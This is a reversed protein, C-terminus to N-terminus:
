MGQNGGGAVGAYVGKDRGSLVTGGGQRRQVLLLPRREITAM